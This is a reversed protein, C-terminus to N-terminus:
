LNGRPASGALKPFFFPDLVFPKKLLGNLRRPDSSVNGGGRCDTGPSRPKTGMTEAWTPFNKKGRRRGGEEGEWTQVPLPIAGPDPPLGQSCGWLSSPPRWRGGGASCIGPWSRPPQLWSGLTAAIGVAPLQPLHTLSPMYKLGSVQLRHEDNANGRICLGLMQSAYFHEWSRIEGRVRWPDFCPSGHVSWAQQLLQPSKELILGHGSHLRQLSQPTESITSFASSHIGM